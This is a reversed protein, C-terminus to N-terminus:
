RGFRVAITNDGDSETRTYIESYDTISNFRLQYSTRADLEDFHLVITTPDVYTVGIPNVRFVEGKEIYELSYNSTSINNVSFAIEINFELKIANKSVTVADAIRPKVISSKGGRFEAECTSDPYEGLADKIDDTYVVYKHSSKFTEGEPLFLKVTYTGNKESYYAKKPVVYFDDDTVGYIIYNKSNSASTSDLARNFTLLVSNNHESVAHKLELERNTPYAGSFTYTAEEIQSQNYIDPIFEIKLEYKDNRDLVSDLSLLVERGALNGTGGVVAKTVAIERGDKEKVTYNIRKEAWNRNVERNFLVRVATMTWAQVSSVELKGSEAAKAVFDIEDGRGEGLRVGYSSTLRGDIKVEYLRGPELIMNKLHISVAKDDSQLKKVTINQSSGSLFESGDKTLEYYTATESNENVPHTFYVNIVNAAPQEVKMIRFFDSTVHKPVYGTFNALIRGSQSGDAYLVNNISITYAKEPTQAETIVQIKNDMFALTQVPLINSPASSEYIVVDSQKVEAIKQDLSVIVNTPSAANVLGDDEVPEEEEEEELIGSEVALERTVAGEDVLVEILKVQEGKRPTSLTRYIVAVADSRLYYTNDQIRDIYASDTVIGVAYAKQYVNSWNFDTNYEYGLACLAMKLFQKETTPEEPEFTSDTTGALINASTCYGVYPAYWRGSIVDVFKTYRFLAANQTVYDDKGLMRIIFAAAEARSAQEYLKYDGDAGRLIDLKNLAAAMENIDTVEYADDDGASYGDDTDALAASAFMMIFIAISLFLSFAKKTVSRCAVNKKM